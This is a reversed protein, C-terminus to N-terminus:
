KGLLYQKILLHYFYIFLFKLYSNLYVYKFYVTVLHSFLTAM